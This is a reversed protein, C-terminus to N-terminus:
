LLYVSDSVLSSIHWKRPLVGREIGYLSYGQNSAGTPDTTVSVCMSDQWYPNATIQGPKTMRLYGNGLDSIFTSLTYESSRPSIFKFPEYSQANFWITHCYLKTTTTTDKATFRRNAISTVFGKENVTIYPINITVGNGGTTDSEMGYSDSESYLNKFRDKSITGYIIKSADTELPIIVQAVKLAGNISINLTGALLGSQYLNEYDISTTSDYIKKLFLTNEFALNFFDKGVIGYDYEYGSNLQTYFNNKNWKM